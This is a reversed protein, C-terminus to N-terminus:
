RNGTKITTPKFSGIFDLGWKRFPELPLVLHLTMRDKETPQDIQQCLDCQRCYEAVDKATTLWWFGSNTMALSSGM